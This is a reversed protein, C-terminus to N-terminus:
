VALNIPKGDMSGSRDILFIYDYVKPALELNMEDEEQDEFM